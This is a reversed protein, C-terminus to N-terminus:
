NFIIVWKVSLSGCYIHQNSCLIDNRTVVRVTRKVAPLATSVAEVIQWLKPDVCKLEIHRLENACM